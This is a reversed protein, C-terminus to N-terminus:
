RSRQTQSSQTYSLVNRQKTKTATPRLVALPVQLPVPEPGVTIPGQLDLLDPHFVGPRVEADDGVDCASILALDSYFHFTVLCM